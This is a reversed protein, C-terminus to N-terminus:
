FMANVAATTDVVQWDPGGTPPDLQTAKRGLMVAPSPISAWASASYTNAARIARDWDNKNFRAELSSAGWRVIGTSLQALSQGGRRAPDDFLMRSRWETFYYAELVLEQSKSLSIALAYGAPDWKAPESLDFRVYVYQSDVALYVAKLDTYGPGRSDAVPDELLPPIGGWDSVSGDVRIAGSSVQAVQPGVFGQSEARTRRRAEVDAPTEVRFAFAFSEDGVSLSFRYRTATHWLEADSTQLYDRVEIAKAYHGGPAIDYVTTPRVRTVQTYAGYQSWAQTYIRELLETTPKRGDSTEASCAFGGEDLRVPRDSENTILVVFDRTRADTTRLGVALGVRAGKLFVTEVGGFSEVTSGAPAATADPIFRAPMTACGMAGVALVAAAWWHTLLSKM